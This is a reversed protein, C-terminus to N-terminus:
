KNKNNNEIIEKLDEDYIHKDEIHEKLVEGMINKVLDYLSLREINLRTEDTFLQMPELDLFYMIDFLRGLKFSRKKLATSLANQAAYELHESLAKKSGRKKLAKKIEAYIKDELQKAEIKVAGNNM